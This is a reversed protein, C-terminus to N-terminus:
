EPQRGELAYWNGEQTRKIDLLGAKRICDEVSEVSSPVLGSLMLTGGAELRLLMEDMLALLVPAIINAIVLDYKTRCLEDLPTDTVTIVNVVNNQAANEGTVTVSKADCDTAMINTCGRKAAYIALIGSGTGVDLVSIQSLGKSPQEDAFTELAKLVLTTTEHAGTGFAAGPDLDIVIEDDGKPTYEEWTPRITLRDTVHTVHWFEKWNEAWDADEITKTQELSCGSQVLVEDAQILLKIDDELSDTNSYVRLAYLDEDLTEARHNGPTDDPDRYLEMVATVHEITWLLQSLYPATYFDCNITAEYTTLQEVPMSM